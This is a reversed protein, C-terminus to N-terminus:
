SSSLTRKHNHNSKKKKLEEAIANAWTTITDWDRFDGVPVKVIRVVCKDLFNLKKTDIAGHFISVDHPKIREIIPKLKAPFKRGKTLEFPDGKGTPGGSFLWVPQKALLGENAVLFKVAEKRWQGVYVASGLIVAYYVKMDSVSKVPLVDVQLGAQRLKEGIKEAIEATAGYKSAYAVLVKTEM